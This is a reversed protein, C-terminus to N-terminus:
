RWKDRWRVTVNSVASAPEVAISNSGPKLSFYDGIFAKKDLISVNNRLIDCGQHDFIIQDGAKAIIPIQGATGDNLRFIKVDAIKQDVVPFDGRQMVRVQVQTIPATAISGSDVWSASYGLNYQGAGYYFLQAHWATGKRILRYIGQIASISRAANEPIIDYGSSASGARAQAYLYDLGGFHKTMQVKGVINSSADLLAVQLCGAQNAGTKAMNFGVDLKFDQVTSGLSTKMAPGHWPGVLSGYNTARFDGDALLTGINSIGELSTASPAAWGVLTTGSNDLISTEPAFTTEEAKAPNGVINMELGNSMAVYTTDASITCTVIPDTEVKGDVVVVGANTFSSTREVSYKYPDVCLFNFKGKGITVFESLDMNGDVMAFMIRNPNSDLILEQAKDTVLWSALDEKLQEMNMGPSTEVRFEVPIVYPEIDTSDHYAGPMGPVYLLNRKVPSWVPRVTGLTARFYTRRQGNFTLSM